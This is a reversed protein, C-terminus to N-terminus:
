HRQPLIINFFVERFNYLGKKDKIWKASKIAGLAFGIRNRARHTLEITDAMSDFGIQHTGPIEGSRVSAFHLVNSEIQGSVREYNIRDKITINDKIIQALIKATGSPSDKKHRHHLELGYIDYEQLKNFIKTANEVISLFANVGISFNASYILGTGSEQVLKEAKNINDFWGTTGIVANKKLQCYKKINDLVADPQTFDICVDANRVSEETIECYAIKKNPDIISVVEINQEVSLENILKGMKGFGVVAVKLM